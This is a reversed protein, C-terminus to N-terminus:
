LDRLSRMIEPPVALPRTAASRFALGNLSGPDQGYSGPPYRYYQVPRGYLMRVRDATTTTADWGARDNDFALVITSFSRVIRDLQEVNVTAGYTAV